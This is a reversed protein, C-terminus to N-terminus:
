ISVYLLVQYTKVVQPTLSVFGSLFHCLITHEYAYTPLSLLWNRPDYYESGLVGSSHHVRTPQYTPMYGGVEIQTVVFDLGRWLYYLSELIDM